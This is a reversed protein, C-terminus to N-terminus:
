FCTGSSYKLLLVLVEYHHVDQVLVEKEVMLIISELDSALVSSFIATSRFQM